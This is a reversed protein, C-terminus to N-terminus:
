RTPGDPPDVRSYKRHAADLIGGALVGAIVLPIWVWIAYV